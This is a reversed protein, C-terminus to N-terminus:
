IERELKEKIKSNRIDSILDLNRMSDLKEIFKQSLYDEIEKAYDGNGHKEEKSSDVRLKPEQPGIKLSKKRQYIAFFIGLCL